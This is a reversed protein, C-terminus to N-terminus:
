KDDGGPCEKNVCVPDTGQKKIALHHSCYQCIEAVPQQWSSFNCEPYNSCGFFYRGKRTRRRVIKGDERGEQKCIACDVGIEDLIPKTNKCEPYGPCALFKGFRGLKYVMNRGCKECVVDSEEDQIEIKELEEHAKALNKAFPEYFEAIVDQWVLEGEEIHDLQDELSATFGTDLLQSFNEGLLDVVIVGLETPKFRKEEIQVYGRGTITEIIPAYTSPRGIGEEELTKVLMAETFRPPPQTFHQQLDLKDLDIKQNEKLDPLLREDRDNTVNGDKGEEYVKLFGAFRLQSGTARFTYDVVSLDVRTADFIASSMQSAVFREWILAYLRLQDRSLYQKIDKPARLASTPRIAEHAEQAGKKKAYQRAKDPIYDDGYADKIFGRVEEVAEESVRTADTRMYTILGLTGAKGLPLGEYLQQALRMTKRAPFNLRRAAEQQMTSTTFPPAPNRRRQRKQVDVISWNQDKVDEEVRKASEENSLEIKKGAKHHLKAEFSEKDETQLQATVSWYEEQEFAEIEHERDVIMKVAVTQVRGASLGPKVKAWLLPSLEYGVMRDLVRRAQQADVLPQAIPRPEKISKKVANKTIERFDIRCNKEEIKLATVLHWAIAEGERDPDTALLIRDAKKAADRLEKLVPGKGRITIYQPAFNNEVDVGFKSRPLDRVHGLSAKVIYNKGLFGKITQAKAPSEVIVLTSM